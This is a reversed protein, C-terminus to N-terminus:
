SKLHSHYLLHLNRVQVEMLRVVIRDRVEERLKRTEESGGLMTAQAEGDKVEQMDRQTSVDVESHKEVEKELAKVGKSLNEPPVSPGSKESMTMWLFAQPIRNGYGHKEFFQIAPLNDDPTDAIIKNCGDRSFIQFEM